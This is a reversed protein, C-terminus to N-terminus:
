AKEWGKVVNQFYSEYFATIEARDVNPNSKVEELDNLLSGYSLNKAECYWEDDNMYHVYLCYYTGPMYGSEFDEYEKFM